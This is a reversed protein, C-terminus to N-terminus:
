ESLFAVFIAGGINLVTNTVHLALSVICLLYLEEIREQAETIQTKENM